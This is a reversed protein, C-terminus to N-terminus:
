AVMKASGAFRHFWVHGLAGHVHKLGFSWQDFVDLQSQNMKEGSEIISIVMENTQNFVHRRSGIYAKPITTGKETLSKWLDMLEPAVEHSGESREKMEKEAAVLFQEDSQSSLKAYKRINTIDAEGIATLTKYRFLVGKLYIAHSDEIVGYESETASLMNLGLEVFEVSRCNPNSVECRHTAALYIVISFAFQRHEPPVALGGVRKFFENLLDEFRSSFLSAEATSCIMRVNSASM